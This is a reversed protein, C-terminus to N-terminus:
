FVLSRRRKRGNIEIKLNAIYVKLEGVNAQTFKTQGLGDQSVEAIGKGLVVEHYAKEAELLKKELEAKREATLM